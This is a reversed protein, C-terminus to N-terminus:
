MHITPGQQGALAQGIRPASIRRDRVSPARAAGHVSAVIAAGPQLARGLPPVLHRGVHAGAGHGLDDVHGLVPELRAQAGGLLGVEHGGALAAVGRDLRVGGRAVLHRRGRGM